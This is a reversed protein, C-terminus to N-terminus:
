PWDLSFKPSRLRAVSDSALSRASFMPTVPLRSRSSVVSVMSTVLPASATSVAEAVSVVASEMTADVFLASIAIESEAVSAAPAVSTRM